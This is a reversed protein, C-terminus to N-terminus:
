DLEDVNDFTYDSHWKPRTRLRTARQLVVDTNSNVINNNNTQDSNVMDNSSNSTVNNDDFVNCEDSEDTISIQPQVIEDTVNLMENLVASQKQEKNDLLMLRRKYNYELYPHKIECNNKNKQSCENKHPAEILHYRNRRFIRNNVNILYSNPYKSEEIIVGYRRLDIIWVGDGKCLTSLMRTRHRKNYYKIQKEKRDNEIKVIKHSEKPIYKNPLMPLCSKIKRGFLLEAPSLGNELPTSRYELLAQWLNDSNKTILSKATKVAAEAEGNSQSYKPSSPDHSIGLKHLFSKFRSRFQPGNDSRVKDPKGFRSFLDEFCRIVDDETQSNLKFIEFYRSYYDVVILYWNGEKFLDAGLKEWPRTPFDEVTHNERPNTRHEICKPCNKVVLDIESNVGLWWVSAQARRRCKAVGQHGQHIFHIVESQLTKPVVIRSEKVLLDDIITFDLRHQYYAQLNSSLLRKEPWGSLVYNKLEICTFDNKQEERIKLLYPDTIPSRKVLLNVHMEIDKSLSIDENLFTVPARSLCDAVTQEKGPIYEIKYEFRM